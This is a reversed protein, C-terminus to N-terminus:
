ESSGFASTVEFSMGGKIGLQLQGAFLIPHRNCAEASSANSIEYFLDVRESRGRTDPNSM